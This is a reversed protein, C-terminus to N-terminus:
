CVCVERHHPETGPGRVTCDEHEATEAPSGLSYFTQTNIQKITWAKNKNFPVIVMEQISSSYPFDSGSCVHSKM